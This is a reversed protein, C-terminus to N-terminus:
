PNGNGEEPLTFHEALEERMSEETEGVFIVVSVSPQIGLEALDFRIPQGLDKMRRLNEHSLGFMLIPRGQKDAMKARIM